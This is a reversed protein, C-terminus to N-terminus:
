LNLTVPKPTLQADAGRKVNLAPPTDFEVSTDSAPMHCTKVELQFRPWVLMITAM